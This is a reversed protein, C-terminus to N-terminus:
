VASRREGPFHTACGLALALARVASATTILGADDEYLTGFPLVWPCHCFPATVRLDAGGPWGGDGRQREVLLRALAAVAPPPDADLAAIALVWSLDFASEITRSPEVPAANPPPMARGLASLLVRNWYSSYHRGRWWYAPWSGDAHVTRLAFALAGEAAGSRESDPLALVAVPTVDPHSIGWGDARPYTAFGGDSRRLSALFAVATPPISLGAARLAIMAWATSDADPGTAANFGWAGGPPRVALLRATARRAAPLAEPAGADFLAAGVFATVWETASGVPFRHYDQWSGNGQQRAILYRVGADRARAFEGRVDLLSTV